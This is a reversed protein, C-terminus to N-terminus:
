TQNTQENVCLALDLPQDVVGLPARPRPLVGRGLGLDLAAAEVLGELGLEDGLLGLYACACAM